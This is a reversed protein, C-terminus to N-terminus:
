QHLLSAFANQNQRKSRQYTILNQIEKAKYKSDARQKKETNIVRYNNSKLSEFCCYDSKGMRLPCLSLNEKAKRQRRSFHCLAVIIELVFKIVLKITCWFIQKVNQICWYLKRRSYSALISVVAKTIIIARRLKM